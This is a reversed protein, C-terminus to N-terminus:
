RWTDGNRNRASEIMRCIEGYVERAIQEVNATPEADHSEGGGASNSPTASASSGSASKPSAAVLRAPASAVLTMEALTIGGGDSGDQFMRRAAEEFWPPISNDGAARKQQASRIMEQVAAANARSQATVLPQAATPARRVAGLSRTSAGSGREASTAEPAAGPAVFSQLSEGARAAVAQLEPREPRPMEVGTMGAAGRGLAGVVQLAPAGFSAGYSPLAGGSVGSASAASAPGSAAGPWAGDAGGTFIMPMVAWAAAARARAAPEGSDAGRVGMRGAAAPGAVQGVLALARAARVAPSLSRGAPSRSLAVYLAEFGAPLSSAGRGLAAAAAAPSDAIFEQAGAGAPGSASISSSGSGSVAPSSGSVSARVFSAAAGAPAAGTGSRVSLDGELDLVPTVYTAPPAGAALISGPPAIAGAVDPALPTASALRARLAAAARASAEQDAGPTVGAALLPGPSTGIGMRLSQAGAGAAGSAGSAISSPSASGPTAGAKGLGVAQAAAQEPAVLAGMQAVASAALLDLAALSMPQATDAEAAQLNMAMVTAHPWLFAGRPTRAPLGFARPWAPFALAAGPMPTGAPTGTLGAAGAQAAPSAAPATAAPGSVPSATSIPAPGAPPGSAPMSAASAARTGPGEGGSRVATFAEIFRLDVAAALTALGTRGSTSLRAAQAAEAPGFGYAQAAVLLEPSVYDLALDAAHQARTMAWSEAKAATTGPAYALGAAPAAASMQGAVPGPVAAPAPGAIAPLLPAPRAAASLAAAALGAPRSVATAGAAAVTATSAATAPARGAAPQQATLAPRADPSAGPAPSAADRAVVPMDFSPSAQRASTADQASAAGAPAWRLPSLMPGAPSTGASLSEPEILGLLYARALEVGHMARVDFSPSPPLPLLASLAPAVPSSALAVRMGPGPAAPSAALLRDVGSAEGTAPAPAALARAEATAAATSTTTAAATAARSPQAATAEAASAARASQAGRRPARAAAAAIAAFVEDSVSDDDAIRPASPPTAPAPAPAPRAGASPRAAASPQPRAAAAAPRAQVAGSARGGPSAPAATEPSAARATAASAGLLGSLFVAEPAQAAFAARMPASAATGTTLEMAALAETSAGAFRALWRDTWAVHALASPRTRTVARYASGYALGPAAPTAMAPAAPSAQGARAPAPVPTALPLEATADRAPTVAAARGAAAPAAARLSAPRSVVREARMGVILGGLGAPLALRPGTSPAMDQGTRGAVASRLVLELARSSASAPAAAGATRATSSSAAAAAAGAEPGAPSAGPAATAPAATAPAAQGSTRGTEIQTQPRGQAQAQTRTQARQAELRRLANQLRNRLAEPVPAPRASAPERRTDARRTEVLDRPAVWPAVLEQTPAAQWPAVDSDITAADNAADTAARPRVAPALVGAMLEAAQVAAFPVLPSWARLAAPRTPIPQGARARTAGPAAATVAEPGRARRVEALAGAAPRGLRGGLSGFSPAILELAPAATATPVMVGLGARSSAPQAPRVAAARAAREARGETAMASARTSQLWGLEDLYWPRPFIWSTPEIEPSPDSGAEALAEESSFMRLPSQQAPIVYPGIVRDSFGLTALSRSRRMADREPAMRDIHRESARMAVAGGQPIFATTASM